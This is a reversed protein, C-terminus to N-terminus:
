SQLMFNIPISNFSYSQLNKFYSCNYWGGCCTTQDCLLHLWHINSHEPTWSWWQPLLVGAGQCCLSPFRLWPLCQAYRRFHCYAFGANALQWWIQKLDQDLSFKPTFKFFIRQFHQETSLVCSFIFSAGYHHPCHVPMQVMAWYIKLTFKFFSREFVLPQQACFSFSVQGKLPWFLGGTHQFHILM